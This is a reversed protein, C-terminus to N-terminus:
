AHALCIFPNSSVILRLTISAPPAKSSLPDCLYWWFYRSRSLCASISHGSGMGTHVKKSQEECLVCMEM